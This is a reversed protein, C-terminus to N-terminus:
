NIFLSFVGVEVGVRVHPCMYESVGASAADNFTGIIWLVPLGCSCVQCKFVGVMTDETARWVNM